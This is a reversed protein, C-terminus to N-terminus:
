HAAVTSEICKALVQRIRRLEQYAANPKKNMEGALDQISAGPQYAREVLERKRTPLKGLCLDLASLWQDQAAGGEEQAETVIKEVLDDSLVLRDRAQTQRYKLIEYRAIVCLWPGFGVEADELEGFKRWAVLSVEQMVETVDQASPVGGRIYARVSPEHQALLRMFTEHQSTDDGM